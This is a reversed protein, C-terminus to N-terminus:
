NLKDVDASTLERGIWTEALWTRQYSTKLETNHDYYKLSRAVEWWSVEQGLYSYFASIPGGVIEIVEGDYIGFAAPEITAPDSRTPIRDYTQDRVYRKQGKEIKTISQINLKYDLRQFVDETVTFRLAPLIHLSVERGSSNVTSVMIREDGTIPELTVGSILGRNALIVTYRRTFEDYTFNVFVVDYATDDGSLIPFRLTIRSGDPFIEPNINPKFGLVHKAADWSFGTYFAVKAEQDYNRPKAGFSFEEGSFVQEKMFQYKRELAQALEPKSAKLETIMGRFIDGSFLYAQFTEAFDEKVNKMAYQSVHKLRDEPPATEAYGRVASWEKLLKDGDKASILHGVEHALGGAQQTNELSISQYFHNATGTTQDGGVCDVGCWRVRRVVDWWNHEKLVKFTRAITVMNSRPFFAFSDASMQIPPRSRKLWSLLEIEQKFQDAEDTLRVRQAKTQSSQGTEQEQSDLQLLSLRGGLLRIRSDILSRALQQEFKNGLNYTQDGVSLTNARWDISARDYSAGFLWALELVSAGQALSNQNIKDIASIAQQPQLQEMMWQLNNGYGDVLKRYGEIADLLQARFQHNDELVQDKEGPWVPETPRPRLNDLYRATQWSIGGDSLFEVLSLGSVAVAAIQAIAGIPIKRPVQEKAM